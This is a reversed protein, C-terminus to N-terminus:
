GKGNARTTLPLTAGSLDAKADHSVKAIHKARKTSHASSRKALSFALHAFSFARPADHNEATNLQKCGRETNQAPAANSHRERLQLQTKAGATIVGRCRASIHDDHCVLAQESCRRGRQAAAAALAEVLNHWVTHPVGAPRWAASGSSRAAAGDAVGAHTAAQALASHRWM